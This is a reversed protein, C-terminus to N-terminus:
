GRLEPFQKIIKEVVEAGNRALNDTTQASSHFTYFVRDDNLIPHLTLAVHRRDDDSLQSGKRYPNVLDAGEIRSVDLVCEGIRLNHNRGHMASHLASDDILTGRACNVIRLGKHSPIANFFSQGLTHRTAQGGPLHLSVVDCTTALEEVSDVVTQGTLEPKDKTRNWFSVTAGLSAARNGVALGIPGAGVVGVRVGDLRRAGYIEECMEPDWLIKTHDKLLQWQSKGKREVTDKRAHLDEDRYLFQISHLARLATSKRNATPTTLVTAGLTDFSTDINTRDVGAKIIVPKYVGIEHAASAAMEPTLKSASRTVIVIRGQMGQLLAKIEDAHTQNRVEVSVKGNLEQPFPLALGDLSYVRVPSSSLRAM